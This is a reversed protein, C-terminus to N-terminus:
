PSATNKGTYASTYGRGSSRRSSSSSPPLDAFLVLLPCTVIYCRPFPMSLCVQPNGGHISLAGRVTSNAM